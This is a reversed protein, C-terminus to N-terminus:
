KLKKVMHHFPEGIITWPSVISFGEREYLRIAADKGTEVNLSVSQLGHEEAVSEAYHLLATGIGLGRFKQDTCITDIYMEGPLAEKDIETVASGKQQLLDKLNRDLETALDGPYLVMVGAVEGNVEAIYTFRYSHRNGNEHFLNELSKMIRDMETEGTLRKAIDGIAEVILPVAKVADSPTAKRITAEM